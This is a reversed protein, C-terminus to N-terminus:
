RMSKSLATKNEEGVSLMGAAGIANQQSIPLTILPMLAYNRAEQLSYKSLRKTEPGYDNPV